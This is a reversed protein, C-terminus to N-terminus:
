RETKQYWYNCIIIESNVCLAKKGLWTSPLNKANHHDKSTEYSFNRNVFTQMSVFEKLYTFGVMFINNLASKIWEFHIKHRNIAKAFCTREQDYALLHPDGFPM